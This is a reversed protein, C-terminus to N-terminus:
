TKKKPRQQADASFVAGPPETYTSDAFGLRWWISFQIFSFVVVEEPPECFSGGGGEKLLISGAFSRSKELNNFTCASPSKALKLFANFNWSLFHSACGSM